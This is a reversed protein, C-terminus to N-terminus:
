VVTLFPQYYTLDDDDETRDKIFKTNDKNMRHRLLEDLVRGYPITYAVRFANEVSEDFPKELLEVFIDAFINQEKLQQPSILVKGMVDDDMPDADIEILQHFIHYQYIQWVQGLITIRVRELMSMNANPNDLKKTVVAFQKDIAEQIRWYKCQWRYREPKEADNTILKRDTEDAIQAMFGDKDRKRRLMMTRFAMCRRLYELLRMVHTSINEGGDPLLVRTGGYIKDLFGIKKIAIPVPANYYVSSNIDLEYMQKIMRYEDPYIIFQESM